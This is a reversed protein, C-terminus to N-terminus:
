AAFGRLVDHIANISQVSTSPDQFPCSYISRAAVDVLKRLGFAPEFEHSRESELIM